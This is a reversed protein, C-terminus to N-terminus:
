RHHIKFCGVASLLELAMSAINAAHMDTRDPLGSVVMYADGITEVKYVNYSAVIEDFKTYLENLFQVVDMPKSESCM